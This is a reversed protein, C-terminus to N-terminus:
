KINFTTTVKKKIVKRLDHAASDKVVWKKNNSDYTMQNGEIIRFGDSDKITRKVNSLLMIIGTDMNASLGSGTTTSDSTIITVDRDTEILNKSIYFIAYSTYMKMPANDTLYEKNIFVNNKLYIEEMKGSPDIATDSKINITSEIEYMNLYPKDILTINNEYKTMMNGELEWEINMDKNKKITHFNNLQNKISLNKEIDNGNTPISLQIFIFFIIHFKINNQM